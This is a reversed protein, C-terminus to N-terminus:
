EFPYRMGWEKRLGDMIEMIALMESHPMQSCQTKGESIAEAAGYLEYEYGTIQPPTEYKQVTGDNLIVTIGECNNINEVEIRGKDGYIIGRRDTNSCMTSHLFATRGGKFTIIINDLADVGYENKVCRSSIDEIDTGMVMRAFNITYVGLDLLAGGALEPRCLREIHAISYGLNATLSTINGIVGEALLRDLTFRMPMFRTWMAEGLFLGKQESLAILEGAQAANVTFAKECLVNRGNELCLRCDNYHSSHPTAIYILDIASDRALEEYSGYSKQAAFEDAFVQAKEATRSAAAYLEFGEARNVTVAMTRAITGTGMIGIKM